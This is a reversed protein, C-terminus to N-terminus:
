VAPVAVVSYVLKPLNRASGIKLATAHLYREPLSSSKPRLVLPVLYVQLLLSFWTSKKGVQTDQPVSSGTDWPGHDGLISAKSTARRDLAVVVHVQLTVSM